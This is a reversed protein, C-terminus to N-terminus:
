RTDSQYSFDMGVRHSMSNALSVQVDIKSNLIERGFRLSSWSMWEAVVVGDM